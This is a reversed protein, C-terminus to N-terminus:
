PPVGEAVPEKRADGNGTVEAVDAAKKAEQERVTGRLEQLAAALTEIAWANRVSHEGISERRLATLHAASGVAEGLDHALSRIYTGKSCTVWFAVDRSGEETRKLDFADVTVRRPTREVEKGERASEYMRKGNVRLASFIPPLQDIDGLFTDRASLLAADTIHEWPLQTTVESEADYSATGEGLRLVGSYEKRMAVFQDISKTAKGVCVILLGTAMPDLTGAHGVKVDRNKKRLLAAVQGRLKGCVDFSTWGKPKDVLVVANEWVSPDDPLAGALVPTPAPLVKKKKPKQVVPEVVAEDKELLTRDESAAPSRPRKGLPEAAMHHLCLRIPLVSLAFPRPCSLVRGAIHVCFVRM